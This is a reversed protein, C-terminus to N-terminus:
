AKNQYGRSLSTTKFHTNFKIFFFFRSQDKAQHKEQLETMMNKLVVLSIVYNIEEIINELRSELASVILEHSLKEKRSEETDTRELFNVFECSKKKYMKVLKTVNEKVIIAIKKKNM